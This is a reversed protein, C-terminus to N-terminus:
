QYRHRTVVIYRLMFLLYPLLVYQFTTVTCRLPITVIIIICCISSIVM